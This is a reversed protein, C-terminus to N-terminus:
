WDFVEVAVNVDMGHWAMSACTNKVARNMADPGSVVVGISEGGLEQVQDRLLTPIDPRGAKSTPPPIVVKLGLQELEQLREFGLWSTHNADQIIWILCANVTNNHQKRRDHLLKWLLPYAVAIGSGGAIVISSDSSQLMKLAHASGYPGDLRIKATFHETAYRLLDKTFGDQVRIILNFWAHEQEPEPAASAITFPHAQLAHKRGLAPVTLFVHDTARWGYNIDRRGILWSWSIPSSKKLPWSASVMITRRDQMITLDADFTRTKLMLRYVLRDLLFIALAIGVYPRLRSHHFFLFGLGAAQLIIHCGLFM